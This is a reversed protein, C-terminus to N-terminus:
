SEDPANKVDCKNKCIMTLVGQESFGIIPELVLPPISYPPIEGHIDFFLNLNPYEKTDLIQKKINQMYFPM